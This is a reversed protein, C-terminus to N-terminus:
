EHVHGYGCLVHVARHGKRLADWLVIQAMAKSRARGQRDSRRGLAMALSLPLHNRRTERVRAGTGRFMTWLWKAMHRARERGVRGLPILSRFFFLLAPWLFVVHVLDWWVANIAVLPWVLLWLEWREPSQLLPWLGAPAPPPVPISKLGDAGAASPYWTSARAPRVRGAPHGPERRM